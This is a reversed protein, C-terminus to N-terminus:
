LVKRLSIAIGASLKAVRTLVETIGMERMTQMSICDTLSYGKDIRERCLSFGALFSQHTQHIINTQPSNLISDVFNVIRKRQYNGSEAYFTLAETLVEETTVIQLPKLSESVAL